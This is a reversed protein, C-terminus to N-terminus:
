NNQALCQKEPSVLISLGNPLLSTLGTLGVSFGSQNNMPLVSISASAGTSQGGSTFLWSMPFVKISPFVSPLLLLPHCLILHNSPMKSESSMPKLLSWSTTLSLSVQTSCGMPDCLQVHSFSQVVALWEVM